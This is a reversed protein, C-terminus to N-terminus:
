SLQKMAFALITDFPSYCIARLRIIVVRLCRMCCVANVFVIMVRLCRTRCSFLEDHCARLRKIPFLRQLGSTKYSVDEIVWITVFLGVVFVVVILM